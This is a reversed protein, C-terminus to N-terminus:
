RRGRETPRLSRPTPKRREEHRDRSAALTSLVQPKIISIIHSIADTLMGIPISNGCLRYADEWTVDRRRKLWSIFTEPFSHMRLAEWPSLRRVRSGDWYLATAGGPGQGWTKQTVVPGTTADYISWGMGGLGLTGWLRPGDYDPDEDIPPCRTVHDLREYCLGEEPVEDLCELATM